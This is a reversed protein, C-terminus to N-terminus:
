IIELNSSTTAELTFKNEDLPLIIPEFSIVQDAKAISLVAKLVVNVYNDGSIIAFVEQLGAVTRSNSVYNLETGIPIAGEILVSKESGDYDFNADSFTVGTIIAPSVTLSATLVLDQFNAGSIIATVQKSGVNTLGNNSYTVTAGNPLTGAISLFKETGNFVYTADSFTIDNDSVDVVKKVNVTYSTKQSEDESLGEFVVDNTFDLTNNGSVQLVKNLYVKSNSETIFIPTLSTIDVESAVELLITNNVISNSELTVGDFSFSNIVAQSSLAPKAISYSQFAGGINKNIEFVETKVVAVIANNTSDYVKFNVTEGVTNAVVSLYAVYKKANSNYVVTAEGRNEGNVFAGVKDNVNTLMTGDVNLFVTFTMNYQYSSANVSWDPSQSYVSATFLLFLIFISKIM